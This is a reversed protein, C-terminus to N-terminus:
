AGESRGEDKQEEREEENVRSSHSRRNNEVVLGTDIRPGMQVESSEGNTRDEERENM